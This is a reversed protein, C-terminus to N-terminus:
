NIFWTQLRLQNNRYKCVCMYFVSSSLAVVDKVLGSGSYMWVRLVQRPTESHFIVISRPVSCHEGHWLTLCPPLTRTRSEWPKIAAPMGILGRASSAVNAGTSAEQGHECTSRRDCPLLYLFNPSAVHLPPPSVCIRVVASPVGASTREYITDNFDTLNDCLLCHSNKKSALFDMCTNWSSTHTFNTHIGNCLVPM